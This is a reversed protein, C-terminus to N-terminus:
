LSKDSNKCIFYIPVIVLILDGMGYVYTIWTHKKLTRAEEPWSPVHHVSPEWIKSKTETSSVPSYHMGDSIPSVPVEHQLPHGRSSTNAAM